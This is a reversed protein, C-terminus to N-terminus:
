RSQPPQWREVRMQRTGFVVHPGEARRNSYHWTTNIKSVKVHKPEGLLSLVEVADMGATLKSWGITWTPESRSDSTVSPAAAASEAAEPPTQCGIFVVSSLIVTALTLITATRM